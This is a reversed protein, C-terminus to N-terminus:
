SRTKKIFFLWTWIHTCSDEERWYFLFLFDIVRYIHSSLCLFIALGIELRNIPFIWICFYCTGEICIPGVDDLDRRSHFQLDSGISIWRCLTMLLILFFIPVRTWNFVVHLSLRNNINFMILILRLDCRVQVLSCIDCFVELSDYKQFILLKLLANSKNKPLVVCTRIESKLM